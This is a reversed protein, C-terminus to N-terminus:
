ERSVRKAYKFFGVANATQSNELISGQKYKNLFTRLVLVSGGTLLIRDIERTDGWLTAVEARIAEALETLRYKLFNPYTM